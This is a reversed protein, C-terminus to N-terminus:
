FTAASTTALATLMSIIQNITPRRHPDFETCMRFLEVFPNYQSGLEPLEPRQGQVIRSSIEWAAKCESYPPKLALLEFIVMGYSHVPARTHTCSTTCHCGSAVFSFLACQACRPVAFVALAALVEFCQAFTSDAKM